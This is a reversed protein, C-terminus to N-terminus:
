RPDSAEHGETPGAADKSDAPGAAESDSDKKAPVFLSNVRGGAGDEASQGVIVSKGTDVNTTLKTGRIVNKGRTLVVNGFLNITGVASEYIARDGTATETPSVLKVKGVVDMRRIRGNGGTPDFGSDVAKADSDASDAGPEKSDYYVTLREGLLHFDGQVAVVNGTFVAVKAAQDIDLKDSTIDIPKKKDLMLPSAPKAAGSTPEAPAEKSPTTDAQAVASSAMLLSCVTWVGFWGRWRAVRVGRYTM